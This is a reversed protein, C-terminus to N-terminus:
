PVQLSAVWRRGQADAVRVAYLGPAWGRVPLPSAASRLELRQYLQGTMAYVEVQAPWATAPLHLYAASAAPNPSLSFASAQPTRTALAVSTNHLLTVESDDANLAVLDPRGDGDTDGVGLAGPANTLALLQGDASFRGAGLNRYLLIGDPHARALDPRGDGDFDAAVLNSLYGPYRFSPTTIGTATPASFTGQGLNRIFWAGTDTVTLIDVKSDGDLDALLPIQNSKFAFAQAFSAGKDTNLYILNDPNTTYFREFGILDALGDQNLDAALVTDTYRSTFSGGAPAFWGSSASGTNLLVHLGDFDSLALDPRGDGNFDALAVLSLFLGTTSLPTRPPIIVPPGFSGNGQNIFLIPGPNAFSAVVIDPRGDGSVDATVVGQYAYQGAAQLLLPPQLEGDPGALFVATGLGNGSQGPAQRTLMNTTVVDMRGDGNFDAMALSGYTSSSQIRQSGGRSFTFLQAHATNALTIALCVFLLNKFM